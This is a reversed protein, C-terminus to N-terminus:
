FLRLERVASSMCLRVKKKNNSHAFALKFSMLIMSGFQFLGDCCSVDNGDDSILNSVKLFAGLCDLTTDPSIKPVAISWLLSLPPFSSALLQSGIDLNLGRSITLISIVIPAVPTKNVIPALWIKSPTGIEATSSRPYPCLIDGLLQWYRLDLLPNM